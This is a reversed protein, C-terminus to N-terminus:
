ERLGAEFSLTLDRLAPDGSAEVARRLSESVAFRRRAGSMYQGNGRSRIHALRLALNAIEAEYRMWDFNRSEPKKHTAEFVLRQVESLGSNPIQTIESIIPIESPCLRLLAEADIIGAGLRSSNWGAPVRATCRAAARFLEQVTTQRSHAEAILNDRGHRGLWLAAIGSTLAASYSTGQGGAVIPKGGTTMDHKARWVMEAPASFDVARGVCSGQWGRDNINTGAVAIVDPYRAPYVTLGICNGAAAVVILNAEVARHIANRLAASGLGGLSMSIIHCGSVRAHNVARAVPAPNVVKVDPICRIPVLQAGPAAGSIEGTSRGVVVSATGSGHGPSATEPDLPDTPDDDGVLIDTALDLRLSESEIEHHKAVGTDPQAILIGKGLDPSLRWAGVVRTNVLAWRKDAPASCHMANISSREATATRDDQHPEPVTMIHEGICPECSVLELKEALEYAIAFLADSARGTDVGPFRLVVFHALDDASRPFLPELVFDLADLIGVLKRRAADLDPNDPYELVFALEDAPLACRGSGKIARIGSTESRCILRTLTRISSM